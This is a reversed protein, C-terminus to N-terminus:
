WQDLRVRSAPTELALRGAPENFFPDRAGRASTSGPTVIEDIRDLVDDSLTIDAAPLQGWDGFMM